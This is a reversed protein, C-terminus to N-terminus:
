GHLMPKPMHRKMHLALHDSRAFSRECSCCKFPKAGTHKRNHRTLEDSRAFTLGCEVWQCNYPKEGTHIRMHAKLHSSKTYVKNCNPFDCRHTRRKEIEPNSGRRVKTSSILPSLDQKPYKELCSINEQSSYPLSSQANSTYYQANLLNIDTSLGSSMSKSGESFNRTNQIQDVLHIDQYYGQECLANNVAMVQEDHIDKSHDYSSTVFEDEQKLFYELHDSHIDGCYMTELRGLSCSIDSWLGKSAPVNMECKTEMDQTEYKIWTQSPEQQQYTNSNEVGWVAPCDFM